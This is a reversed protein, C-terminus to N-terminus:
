KKNEKRQIKPIMFSTYAMLVGGALVFVIWNRPDPDAFMFYVAVAFFLAAWTEIRLLRRIRLNPGDYSVFLRGVLNVLAGAGYIYKFSDDQPGTFFPIFIGVLILILGIGSLISFIKNKM